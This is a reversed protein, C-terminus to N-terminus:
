DEVMVRRIDAGLAILKDEIREYGRDIYKINSIETEGEAMLGAVVLAAGARLDSASVPAGTLREVGEVVAVSKDVSVKAGMRRIEHIHKYREEFINEVVMSTGKATSLLVTIPQQLDTPFGPYPFTRVNVGRLRRDNAVRVYDDGSEVVVGMEILKASLAELHTPIVNRVVVDGRTGAAAIMITGAEIQDPIVAYSCGHLKEVGKIRIVDTGAGKVSAGMCNLFNAVDVVHPEKAANVIVTQGAARVAALMINITAGVSAMDLYIEAGTLKDCRAKLMGGEVWVDAGLAQFGKIHQDIPRLGIKCGGPLVVEGQGFRGLMSGLLYYSARMKGVQRDTARFTAIGSADLKMTGDPSFEAKAGLKQMIEQLLVVDKINPLNEIVCPEECLIVAPIVGVAANKAGSISIEGLLRKGGRIVIREEKM